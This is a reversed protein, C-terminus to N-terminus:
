KTLTELAAAYIATAKMLDEIKVGEDKQHPGGVFDEITKESNPFESGFAVFNEFKRAYTGGGITKAPSFHDGSYQRYVDMLSTVLPSTPDVFLPKSDSELVPKLDYNRQKCANEFGQMIKEVNADNPYRIDITITCDGNEKLSIIGTNMTLFGMYAGNMAIGLPKGQWDCLMEYTNRAFADDYANGVFNLLHLAANVGNYPEAAHSFVGDIHLCVHEGLMKAYGELQNCHLYFDFQQQLQENWYPMELEAKGIVINPRSGVEMSVIKTNAKGKLLVHLGGKEGYTAPFDADPVFGCQPIEGHKKYYEICEMGSEEDCGLILMIKKKLPIQQDKLMKLAYFAALAPGKDDTVGRGFLYGDKETLALPEKTWGEGIPVIDLHALMGVSEEGDGYRIVGAYGDVDETSFGHKEALALMYDLAKRPGEGFPAGDRAEEKNRLSPIQVLGDLDKIMEDKYKEAEKMWNIM